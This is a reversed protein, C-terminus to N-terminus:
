PMYESNDSSFYESYDDEEHDNDLDELYDCAECETQEDEM